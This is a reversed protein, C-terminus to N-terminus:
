IDHRHRSFPTASFYEDSSGMGDAVRAPSREAYTTPACQLNLYIPSLDASAPCLASSLGAQPFRPKRISFRLIPVARKLLLDVAASLPEVSLPAPEHGRGL